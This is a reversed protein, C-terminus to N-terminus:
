EEPYDGMESEAMESSMYSPPDFQESSEDQQIREMAEKLKLALATDDTRQGYKEMIEKIKPM